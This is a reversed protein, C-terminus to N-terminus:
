SARVFVPLLLRPKKSGVSGSYVFWIRENKPNRRKKTNKMSGLRPPNQLALTSSRHRFIHSSNQQFSMTKYLNYSSHTHTNHEEKQTETQLLTNTAISSKSEENRM